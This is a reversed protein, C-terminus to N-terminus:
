TEEPHTFALGRDALWARLAAVDAETFPRPTAEVLLTLGPSLKFARVPALERPARAWFRDRTAVAAPVPGAAPEDIRAITRLRADSVGALQRQVDALALGGRQLRKIAVLQLLHREGYQAKKDIFHHPPDVLGLATYYRITRIDPADNVRGSPQAEGLLLRASAAALEGITM